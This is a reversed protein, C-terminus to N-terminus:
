YREHRSDDGGYTDVFSSKMYICKSSVRNTSTPPSDVDRIRDPVVTVSSLHRDLKFRRDPTLCRFGHTRKWRSWTGLRRFRCQTISINRNSTPGAQQPGVLDLSNRHITNCRSGVHQQGPDPPEPIAGWHSRRLGGVEFASGGTGGAAPSRVHAAKDFQTPGARVDETSHIEVRHFVIEGDTLTARLFTRLSM